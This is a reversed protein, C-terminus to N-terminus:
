IKKKIKKMTIKNMKKARVLIMILYQILNFMRLGLKKMETLHKLMKILIYTLVLIMKMVLCQLSLDWKIQIILIAKQRCQVDIFYKFYVKYNVLVSNQRLILWKMTKNLPNMKRIKNKKICHIWSSIWFIKHCLLMLNIFDRCFRNLLLLGKGLKILRSLHM